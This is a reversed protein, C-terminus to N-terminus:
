KGGGYLKGVEISKSELKILKTGGQFRVLLYTNEPAGSMLVASPNLKLTYSTLVSPSSNVYFRQSSLGPRMEAQFVYKGNELIGIWVNKEGTVYVSFFNKDASEQSLTVIRELDIQTNALFHYANIYLDVMGGPKLSADIASVSNEIKNIQVNLSKLASSLESIKKSNLKSLSLDVIGMVTGFMASAIILIIMVKFILPTEEEINDM